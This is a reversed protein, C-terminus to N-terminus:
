EWATMKFRESPLGFYGCKWDSQQFFDLDIWEAKKQLVQEAAFEWDVRLVINEVRQKMELIEELEYGDYEFHLIEMSNGQANVYDISLDIGWKGKYNILKHILNSQMAMSQLQELAEGSYGKREFLFAHNLHAGTTPSGDVFWAKRISKEDRHSVFPQNNSYSYLQELQTLRYGNQDFMEVWRPNDWSTMGITPIPTSWTKNTYFTESALQIM